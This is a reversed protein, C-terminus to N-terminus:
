GFNTRSPAQYSRNLNQQPRGLLVAPNLLKALDAIKMPKEEEELSGIKPILKKTEEVDKVTDIQTPETVPEPLTAAQKLHPRHPSKKAPSLRPSEPAPKPNFM